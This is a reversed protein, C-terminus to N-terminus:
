TASGSTNAEKTWRFESGDVWMRHMVVALRRALAVKAKKSGHRKAINMAWAKLWCWKVVRTMMSQAAEYLLTRMMADGRLSVHGVRSVEGSQNLIPTLGLVAGVSRSHRFRSPIDVTSVYALSVIPGVGPVTMLRRCVDDHKAESRVKKELKALGERLKRRGALLPEMIEALEADNEVLELIRTEFTSGSTQGVKLGFNRLLGRMENELDIAKEQLLCRATLLARRKQSTLTKVHVDKFLGVRMMHAIGRADNRSFASTREPSPARPIRQVLLRELSPSCLGLRESTPSTMTAHRGATSRITGTIEKFVASIQRSM